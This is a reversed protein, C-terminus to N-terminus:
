KLKIMIENIIYDYNFDNIEFNVKKPKEFIKNTNEFRGEKITNMWITIDYNKRYEDFPCIFDVISVKDSMECLQLMRQAQTIRAIHSFEWDNFMKRVQDGNFYACNKDKILKQAFTTKGSGPLGFVLIKM